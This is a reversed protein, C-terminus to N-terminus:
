STKEKDKCWSFIDLPAQYAQSNIKMLGLLSLFIYDHSLSKNMAIQQQCSAEMNM